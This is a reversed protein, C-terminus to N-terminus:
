PQKSRRLVFLSLVSQKVDSKRLIHLAVQVQTVGYQSVMVVLQHQVHSQAHGIGVAVRSYQRELFSVERTAGVAHSSPRHARQSWSFILLLVSADVENVLRTVHLQVQVRFVPRLQEPFEAAGQKYICTIHPRYALILHTRASLKMKIVEVLLQSHAISQADAQVEVIKNQTEVHAHLSHIRGVLRLIVLVIRQQM